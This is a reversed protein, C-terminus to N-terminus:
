HRLISTFHCRVICDNILGEDVQHELPLNVSKLFLSRADVVKLDPMELCNKEDLNLETM